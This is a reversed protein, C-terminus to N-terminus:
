PYIKAKIMFLMKKYFDILYNKDVAVSKINKTCWDKWIFKTEKGLTLYFAMEGDFTEIGIPIAISSKADVISFRAETKGLSAIIEEKWAANYLMHFVDDLNANKNFIIDNVRTLRSIVDFISLELSGYLVPQDFDGVVSGDILLCMKVYDYNGAKFVEFDSLFEIERNHM